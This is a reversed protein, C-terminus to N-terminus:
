IFLSDVALFIAEITTIPSWAHLYSASDRIYKIIYKIYYGWTPVSLGSCVTYVWILHRLIHPKQDLDTNDVVWEAINFICRPITFYVQELKLVLIYLSSSTGISLTLISVAPISNKCTLWIALKKIKSVRIWRCQSLSCIAWPSKQYM